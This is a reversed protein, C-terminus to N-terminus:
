HPLYMQNWVQYFYAAALALGMVVTVTTLIKGFKDVVELRHNVVAQHAVQPAEFDHFHIYDDEEYWSVGKRYIALGLVACALALWIIAFPALSMEKDGRGAQM